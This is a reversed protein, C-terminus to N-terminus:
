IQNRVTRRVLYISTATVIMALAIWPALFSLRNVPHGTGGVPGLCLESTLTVTTTELVEGTQVTITAVGPSM